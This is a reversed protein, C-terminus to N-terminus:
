GVKLAVNESMPSVMGSGAVHSSRPRPMTLATPQRRRRFGYLAVSLEDEAGRPGHAARNTKPLVLRGALRGGDGRRAPADRAPPTISAASWPFPERVSGCAAARRPPVRLM